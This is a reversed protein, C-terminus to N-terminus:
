IGKGKEVDRLEALKFMEGSKESIMERNELCGLWENPIAAEGLMVGLIAGTISGTSDSDGSHNAAALVGEKFNEVFAMACFLAIGLAEEGVWGEGIEAVAAAVSDFDYVPDDKGTLAKKEQSIPGDAPKLIDRHGGQDKVEGALRVAKEVAELTEEHGWYKLLTKKARAAADEIDKGEVLHGIVEALFGASLYASPHGHTMAAFQAGTRFADKGRLVLGVPAVRMVGGCGKSDNLESDLTGMERRALSDLCTMGPVRRQQPDSQTEFWGLYADYVFPVPDFVGSREWAEGARILGEATALSM